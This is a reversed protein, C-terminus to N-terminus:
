FFVKVRLWGQGVASSLFDEPEGASAALLLWLEGDQIFDWRVDAMVTASRDSISAISSLGATWFDAVPHDVSIFILNQGLVRLETALVSMWDNITYSGGNQKPGAGYHYFEAMVHTEFTFFYEFGTSLEWWDDPAGEQDEIFNHASEVWLRIGEIDLVADGGVMVRRADVFNLADEPAGGTMAAAVIREPDSGELDTRIVRTLYAAPGFRLPGLRLRARGGATWKEFRGEPAAAMDISANEGLEIIARVSIVGEKEYTPDFMEKEVFVDTPNWIYGAGQELPQKGISLLLPGAPVKLYANDIYLENELSYNLAGYDVLDEWRQDRDILDDVLQGPILDRPGFVTEGVFLRGVADARVQVGEPLDADVDIRLRTYDYPSIRDNRGTRRLWLGTLQNELSGHLHVGISRNQDTSSREGTAEDSFTDMEAFLDDNDSSVTEASPKSDGNQQDIEDLPAEEPEPQQSTEIASKEDVTPTKTESKQQPEDMGEPTDDTERARDENRSEQESPIARQKPGEMTEQADTPSPAVLSCIGVTGALAFLADLRKRAQSKM